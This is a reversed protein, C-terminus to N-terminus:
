KAESMRCGPLVAVAESSALNNPPSSTDRRIEWGASKPFRRSISARVEARAAPASRLTQQQDPPRHGAVQQVSAVEKRGDAVGTCHEGPSEPESSPNRVRDGLLELAPVAPASWVPQRPRLNGEWRAPALDGGLCQQKMLSATGIRGHRHQAVPRAAPTGRGHGLREPPVASSSARSATTPSSPRPATPSTTRVSGGRRPGSRSCTRAPARSPGRSPVSSSTARWGPCGGASRSRPATPWSTTRSSGATSATAGPTTGPM